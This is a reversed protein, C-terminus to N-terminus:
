CGKQDIKDFIDTFARMKTRANTILKQYSFEDIEMVKLIELINLDEYYTLLLALKEQETLYQMGQELKITLEQKNM